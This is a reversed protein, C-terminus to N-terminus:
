EPCVKIALYTLDDKSGKWGTFEGLVDTMHVILDRTRKHGTECVIQQVREEGFFEGNEDEADCLGDSYYFFVDGPEFSVEYQVYVEDLKVGLPVNDGELMECGGDSAHFHVTKTHGGDVYKMLRKELDFRSYNITVFRDLAVLQSSIKGHVENVLDEPRPRYHNDGEYILKSMARQFQFRSAAGVLAAPVGKGMVDGIIVDFCKDDFKFFDFFDGDVAQSAVTVAEIDVGPVDQPIQGILLTKQIQSGIDLEHRRSLDLQREVRLRENIETTLKKNLDELARSREELDFNAKQLRRTVVALESNIVAYEKAQEGAIAPVIEGYVFYSDDGIHRVWCKYSTPLEAGTEAFHLVQPEPSEGTAATVLMRSFSMKSDSILLGSFDNDDERLSIFHELTNNALLIHGDRDLKAMLGSMDTIIEDGLAKFFLDTLENLAQRM